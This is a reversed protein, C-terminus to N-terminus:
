VVIMRNSSGTVDPRITHKARIRKIVEALDDGSHHYGYLTCRTGGASVVFKAGGVLLYDGDPPLRDMGLRALVDQTQEPTLGITAGGKEVRIGEWRKQYAEAQRQEPTLTLQAWKAEAAEKKRSAQAAEVKGKIEAALRDHVHRVSVPSTPFKPESM